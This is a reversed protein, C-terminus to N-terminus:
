QKFHTALSPPTSDPLKLPKGEQALGLLHDIYYLGISFECEDLMGDRNLDSLEWIEALYGAELRSRLFIERVADPSLAKSGLRDTQRFLQAYRQKAGPNPPPLNSILIAQPRPPLNPQNAALMTGQNSAIAATPRSPLPPTKLGSSENRLPLAPTNSGSENRPPLLPPTNAGSKNNYANVNVNVNVNGVEKEDVNM